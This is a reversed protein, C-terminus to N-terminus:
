KPCPRKGADTPAYAQLRSKLESARLASTAEFKTGDFEIRTPSPSDSRIEQHQVPGPIPPPEEGARRIVKYIGVLRYDVQIAREKIRWTGSYVVEGEGESLALKAGRKLLTGSLRGFNGNRAFYLVSGGAWSQKADGPDSEWSLVEQIWVPHITIFRSLDNRAFLRAGFTASLLVAFLVRLSRM